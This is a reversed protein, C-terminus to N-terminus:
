LKKLRIGEQWTRNKLQGARVNTPRESRFWFLSARFPFLYPLFRILYAHVKTGYPLFRILYAHVKTGYLLFWFLYAPFKTQLKGKKTEGKGKKTQSDGYSLWSCRGIVKM